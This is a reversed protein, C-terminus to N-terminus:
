VALGVFSASGGILIEGLGKLPAVQPSCQGTDKWNGHNTPLPLFFQFSVPGYLGETTGSLPKPSFKSQPDADKRPKATICRQIEIQNSMFLDQLMNVYDMLNVLM